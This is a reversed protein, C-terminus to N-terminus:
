WQPNTVILALAATNDLPPSFFYGQGCECNLKRLFALQEKTEVGEATVYMGLKHALTIIIEIIELNKGNADIPRVFSHDIKLVSIPFSHLRSLSSYGTGFDDISLKIGMKRLESLAANAEDGNEMIASETIELMLSGADLGTSDLIEGIQEILDPQSFQKVSLNVSIKELSNTRHSVQWSQMQRCAEHLAWYGVEVIMGTEEVLPIFDTPSILGREPHQWRLLAEFGILRGNALSVIPQYYLQFEQREIARRLDNELQLRVLANTYMEQNFLEYRAKGLAKARYMATDADRLLNEPQDYDVTSSLAIGISATTFVEQGDLELPLTLEQQIREAVKIAESVNKIEDLLITFEDGGLRAAIDTSRICVGLRNAIAILFQDGKLHGLSDNIVKFRDLDLFLVAFLYNKQRKGRQLTHKLREMFFARNPLGTLADHFANYRLQEEVQKRENIEAELQRNAELLGAFSEQLQTAMQNHAQALVRLENIGEVTVTQDLKGNAIEKSAVSLCLIPQTIWHSTVVGIATAFILAGLCLLITTRTNAEIHEMFDAEPVVVIIVWNLGCDAAFPMLQVFQRKHDIEFELQQSSSINRFNGFQSQLYQTTLRTIRDSSAIARLRKYTKKGGEDSLIFPQEATSTAVLDGSHEVIFTKGSRGIKLNHLFESLQSLSLTANTVGLLSGTQDYLPKTASFALGSSSFYSYIETCTTKGAKVANTYWPRTRPDFTQKVQLLKVLNGQNDTTYTYYNNGTSQDKRRIVLSGDNLRDVSHIDGQTSAFAIPKLPKFLQMQHWLHHELIKADKLSLEGIHVSNANIQTVLQPIEIYATVHQHIRTTIENRLQTAVDNVAKQGNKLSLFATLGVASSIQLVFPVVLAVRLPVRLFGKPISRLFNQQQM